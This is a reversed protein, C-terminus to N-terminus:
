RKKRRGPWPLEGTLEPMGGDDGLRQGFRTIEIKPLGDVEFWLLSITTDSRECHRSLEWLDVGKEWDKFWIYQSVEGIENSSKGSTRIRDAVSGTPIGSRPSIWAGAERFLTSRVTYRVTGREMTVFACPLNSLDAFRSAAAPFSTGFMDAMRQILELSPDEQPTALLWQQYPM